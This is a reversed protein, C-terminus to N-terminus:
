HHLGNQKPENQEEKYVPITFKFEAGKDKKQELWIQGGHVEIISRSISLGIGTGNAKTTYFPEFIKNISNSKIGPGTDKVTFEINQNLNRAYLFLKRNNVPINNMAQLANHLLNLLVQQIQVFDVNILPCDSPVNVSFSTSYIRSESDILPVIPDIIDTVKAPKCVPNKQKVLHKIHNVVRGARASQETIKKILDRLRSPESSASDISRVAANAYNNIACLPQNIEHSIASAMQGITIVRYAHALSQRHANAVQEAEKIKTVDRGIAYILNTRSDPYATWSIWKCSGDPTLYRNEFNKLFKGTESMDKLIKVTKPIDEPHIYNIIKKNEVQEPPFGLIREFAPSVKKFVGSKDAICLIDLSLEFVKGIHQHEKLKKDFDNAFSNKASELQKKQTNVLTKLKDIACSLSNDPEASDASSNDSINGNFKVASHDDEKTGEINRM